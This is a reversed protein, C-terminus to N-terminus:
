LEVPVNVLEQKPQCMEVSDKFWCPPVIDQGIRVGCPLIIYDLYRSPSGIKPEMATRTWLTWSQMKQDLDKIKLIFNWKIFNLLIYIM